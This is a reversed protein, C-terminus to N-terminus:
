RPPAGACAIGVDVPQVARLPLTLNLEGAEAETISSWLSVGERRVTIRLPGDPLGQWIMDGDGFGAAQFGIGCAWKQLNSVDWSAEVLAPAPAPDTGLAVEAVPFAPDLAIYLAGNTIRAGLVGTSTAADLRLTGPDDLRLTHLGGRQDIRWRVPGTRTVRVDDFSIAISTYDSARMSIFEDSEALAVLSKLASLSARKEGSYMHYYLDFPKYRVPAGTRAVTQAVLMQGFFPGHWGNTYFMENTNPAYVQTEGDLRRLIPSLYTISPLVADYRNEGGNLNAVGALRTARIAEVYPEADGTWQFLKAEKGPPALSGALEVAGRIEQDLSFRDALYVRPLLASTSVAEPRYYAYRDLKLTDAALRALRAFPSASEPTQVKEILALENVRDYDQFYLWNFPHTYGHAAVEVHDLAFLARALRRAEDDGGLTPDMDGGIVGVSVAVGPHPRILEDLIVGAARRPPGLAPADIETLNNWGDGDVHSIVIRRGARTTVDPVPAHATQFAASFFAFPNLIWKVRGQEPDSLSDDEYLEYSLPVFGGHPGTTIISSAQRGEHPATTIVLHSHIDESLPVLIPFTHLVPDLRHEFGVFREDAFAIQSRYTVPVFGGYHLGFLGFFEQGLPSDPRLGTEGLIAFRAGRALQRRTWALYAKDRAIPRDFWTLVHDFTGPGADPPMGNAIDHFRLRYGLHNLPMEAILHIRTKDIAIGADGDYLALVTRRVEQSLAALPALSVLLLALGLVQLARVRLLYKTITTKRM